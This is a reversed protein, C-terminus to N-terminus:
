ALMCWDGGMHSMSGAAALVCGHWIEQLSVAPERLQLRM